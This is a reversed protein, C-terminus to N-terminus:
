PETDEYDNQNEPPASGSEGVLAGDAGCRPCRGFATSAITDTASKFRTACVPCLYFMWYAGWSM